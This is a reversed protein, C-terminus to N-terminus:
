LEAAGAARLAGALDGRAGVEVDGLGLWEALAALEAGLEPVVEGGEIGPEGWSALVRLVGAKRDAKVDVRAVIRDRLLFPLVYYGHVRQHAPTYLEIRFHLDFLRSARERFWILSDFPSLLAQGGARRPWRADPHLFGPQAWGEVQVPVLRGAEVLERLLPRAEVPRLRFYDALDGDTGVGLAGAAVMLLERQADAPEPTPRALVAAPLIREPVDYLREFSPFRRRAGLRGSWFLFELAQKGKNWGWWAGTRGGPDKLQGATLPGRALVEAYVAEVFDPQDRNLRALGGWVGQGQEARAMRWRLLPQLEVPLLSAEHGWYEFLEAGAQMRWPLGRDYSGLRAHLSLEHARAVVNVSDLQVAGVQAFTRRVHRRDVPGGRRQADILGQAGLVIRRAQAATVREPARM